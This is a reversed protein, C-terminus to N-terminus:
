APCRAPILRLLAPLVRGAWSAIAHRGGPTQLLIAQRGPNPASGLMSRFWARDAAGIPDDDFDLLFASPRIPDARAWAAAVSGALAPEGLVPSLAMVLGFRRAHALGLQLASVGGLSAGGIGRCRREAVTRYRADIAEVVQHAVFDGYAPGRAEASGDWPVPALDRSRMGDDSAIGVVIVGPLRGAAIARDLQAELRWSGYWAERLAIEAALTPDLGAAFPSWDFLDHGDNFYFVPYRWQACDYGPPLYVLIRKARGLEPAPLAFSEFRHSAEACAGTPYAMAPIGALGLGFVAIALLALWPAWRSRLRRLDATTSDWSRRLSRCPGDQRPRPIM